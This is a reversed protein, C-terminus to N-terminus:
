LVGVDRLAKEFDEIAREAEWSLTQYNVEHVLRNRLKHGNWAAQYAEASRFVDRANKLRDGMTEGPVLSRLVHDLLKDAAIVAQQFRSEGGEQMSQQIRQWETQIYSRDVATGVQHALGSSRRGSFLRSIGGVITDFLRSEATEKPYRKM